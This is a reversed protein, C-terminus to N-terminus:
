FVWIFSFYLLVSPVWWKYADLLCWVRYESVTTRLESSDYFHGVFLILVTSYFYFLTCISVREFDRVSVYQYFLFGLFILACVLLMESISPKFPKRKKVQYIETQVQLQQTQCQLNPQWNVQLDIIFLIRQFTNHLTLKQACSGPVKGQLNGNELNEWVCCWHQQFTESPLCWVNSM